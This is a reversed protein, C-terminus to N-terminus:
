SHINTNDIGVFHNCVIFELIIHLLQTLVQHKVLSWIGSIIHKLACRPLSCTKICLLFTHRPTIKLFIIRM